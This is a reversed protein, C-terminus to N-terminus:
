VAEGDTVARGVSLRAAVPKRVADLATFLGQEAAALAEVRAGLTAWDESERGRARRSAQLAFARWEDGIATVREALPGVQVFSPRRGVEQLFAAFLYRFGAGGTGVEEQMRVIGALWQRAQREGVETPWRAIRRGLHRIAQGGFIQVVGPIRLMRHCTEELGAAIARDLLEPALRQEDAAQPADGALRYMRGKPMFRSGGSFRARELDAVPCEFLDEMIPDSVIYTDGRRELVVLNHGNFHVRMAKPIYPLWFINVQLGVRHGADIAADLARMAPERRFWTSVQTPMGLRKAAKGFIAGPMSRFSTLPHGMVKFWPVHVFFVGAGIGFIMPESLTVGAERFLVRSVGSECHAAHLHTYGEVPAAPALVAHEVNM